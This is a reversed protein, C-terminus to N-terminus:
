HRSHPAALWGDHNGSDTAGTSVPLFGHGIWDDKGTGDFPGSLIRANRQFLGGVTGEDSEGAEKADHQRRVASPM